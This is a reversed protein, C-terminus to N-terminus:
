QIPKAADACPMLPTKRRSAHLMLFIKLLDLGSTVFDKLRLKSGKKDIWIRLPYEMCITDVPPFGQHQTIIFRALIEVDFIWHTTFPAAFIQKLRTNVRFLKAGCQTDYVRLGLIMSTATAFARGAYHRVPNREIKYGLLAVRSAMAIDKHGQTLANELELMSAIPAALDADLFGILAPNMTFGKLFGLRVAEAKGSNHPLHLVSIHGPAKAQLDDLMASTKDTSGDDVFLLHIAAHQGAFALFVDPMLREAENYCPIVILIRM